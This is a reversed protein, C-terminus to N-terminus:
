TGHKYRTTIASALGRIITGLCYKAILPIGLSGGCTNATKHRNKKGGMAWREAPAQIATEAVNECCTPFTQKHRTSQAGTWTLEPKDRPPDSPARSSGQSSGPVLGLRSWCAEGNECRKQKGATGGESRQKGGPRRCSPCCFFAFCIHRM